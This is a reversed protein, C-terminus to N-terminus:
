YSVYTIIYINPSRTQRFLPKFRMKQPVRRPCGALTLGWAHPGGRWRGLALCRRESLFRGRELLLIPEQSGFHDGQPLLGM